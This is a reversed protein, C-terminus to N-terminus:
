SDNVRPSEDRPLPFASLRLRTTRVRLYSWHEREAIDSMTEGVLVAIESALQMTYDKRSDRRTYLHQRFWYVLVGLAPLVTLLVAFAAFNSSGNFVYQLLIFVSAALSLLTGVILSAIGFTRNQAHQYRVEGQTLLREAARLASELDDGDALRWRLVRESRRTVGDPGIPEPM